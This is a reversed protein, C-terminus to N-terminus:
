LYSFLEDKSANSVDRILSIAALSLVQRLIRCFYEDEVDDALVVSIGLRRALTEQQHDGAKVFAITPLNPKAAIINKLLKGGPMDILDWHSIVVDIKDEFLHRVAEAGSDMVLIRVPLTKLAKGKNSIGVSLVTMGFNAMIM